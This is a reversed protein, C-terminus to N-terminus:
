DRAFSAVAFSSGAFSPPPSSAVLLASASANSPFFFALGGVGVVARAGKPPTEHALSPTM